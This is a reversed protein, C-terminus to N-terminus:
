AGLPNTPVDRCSYAQESTLFWKMLRETELPNNIVATSAAANIAHATRGIVQLRKGSM